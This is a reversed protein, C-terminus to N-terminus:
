QGLASMMGSLQGQMKATADQMAMFKNKTREELSVMRRDLAVQQDNLRYNQDRLSNERTRITGSVGTMSQIADEVKKSFGQNGGFFSELKTFNNSLQRNLMKDNIELTGQRTSTIGFETLTKLDDPAQEISTSFATKLRSQATRVISDGALPGAAGTQPDVASLESSVQHFQNYAAVFQEIDQRV